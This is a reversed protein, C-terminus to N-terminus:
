PQGPPTNNAPNAPSLTKQDLWYEILADRSLLDIAKYAADPHSATKHLTPLRQGGSQADYANLAIRYRRDPDLPSGDPHTIDTVQLRNDDSQTHVTLGDLHHTSRPLKLAETTIAILETRTFGATCILNEYPITEWAHALTLPGAPLSKSSFTGHLVADVPIQRRTLASRIARTILLLTDSPTGRPSTANLPATLTALPRQMERDSAERDSASASLVLPDAPITHDMLKTTLTVLRLQRNHRSFVLDVRGCHIGHYNAQTYPIGRVQHNGIDRHSHGGIIAHIGPIERAIENIRNAFDDPQDPGRLGMHTALIVADPQHAALQRLTEQLAPVPPAAAFDGLLRPSLWSPLGPTTVGVIAIRFGAVERVIFPLIRSLPHSPDSPTPKGALTANASLVPMNAARVVGALVEHGWDFEHNGIVWADYRLLNLLHMMLQGRSSWSVHTGQYLDGVDILLHNPNAERWARIQSACRALGGLDPTVVGNADPYTQTPLIHGHLDTTHLISIRVDDDTGARARPGLPTAAAAGALRRIFTRRTLRSAPQAPSM